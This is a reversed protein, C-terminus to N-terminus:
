RASTIRPAPSSVTISPCSWIRDMISLSPTCRRRTIRRQPQMKCQKRWRQEISPERRGQWRSTYPVLLMLEREDDSKRWSAEPANLNVDVGLSSDATGEEEGNDDDEENDDSGDDDDGRGMARNALYKHRNAFAYCYACIDEIPNSVKLKPFSTKWKYYYTPFSVFDHNGSDVAEGDEREGLIFAGSATSRVNTYGLSALYRKYCNRYGMSMPLYRENDDNGRNVLAEMGKVLTTVVRTARVEDALEM